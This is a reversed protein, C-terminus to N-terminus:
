IDSFPINTSYYNCGANRIVDSTTNIAILSVVWGAEPAGGDDDFARVEKPMRPAM